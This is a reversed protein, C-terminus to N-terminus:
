KRTKVAPDNARWKERTEIMAKDTQESYTLSDLTEMIEAATGELLNVCATRMAVPKQEEGRLMWHYEHILQDIALMKDRPERCLPYRKYYDEFAARAHGATLQGNNRRETESLYVRWQIQWGCVPCKILERGGKTKREIFTDIGKQACRKCRVRGEEAWTFELISECRLFLGIGVDDLIPEDYDGGACSTYFRRIEGLNVRPAWYMDERDNM